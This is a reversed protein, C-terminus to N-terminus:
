HRTTLITIPEFRNGYHPSSKETMSLSDVVFLVDFKGRGATQAQRRLRAFSTSADGARDPHRWDNWTRGVGHLIFGLKINRSQATTTAKPIM